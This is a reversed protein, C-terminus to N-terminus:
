RQVSIPGVIAKTGQQIVEGECRQSSSADLATVLLSKKAIRTFDSAISATRFVCLLIRTTLQIIPFLPSRQDATHDVALDAEWTMAHIQEIEVLSYINLM